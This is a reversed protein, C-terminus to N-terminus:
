FYVMGENISDIERYEVSDLFQIASTYGPPNHLVTLTINQESLIFVSIEMLTAFRCLHYM